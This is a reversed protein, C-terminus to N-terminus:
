IFRAKFVKDDVRHSKSAHIRRKTEDDRGHLLPSPPRKSAHHGTIPMM